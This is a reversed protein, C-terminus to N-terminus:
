VRRNHLLMIKGDAFTFQSRINYQMMGSKFTYTMAWTSTDTQKPGHVEPKPIAGAGNGILKALTGVGADIPLLSQM